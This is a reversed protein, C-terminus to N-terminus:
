INVPLMCFVFWATLIKDQRSLRSSHRQLVTSTLSIVVLTALAFSGLLASVSMTNPVYDTLNADLPWYPHLDNM